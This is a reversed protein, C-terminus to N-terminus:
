DGVVLGFSGCGVKVCFDFYVCYSVFILVLGLKLFCFVILLCILVMMLFGWFWFRVVYFRISVLFRVRLVWFCCWVVVVLFFFFLSGVWFCVCCSRLVVFGRVGFRFFCLVVFLFCGFWWFWVGLGFCVMIYYWLVLLMGLLFCYLCELLGCM